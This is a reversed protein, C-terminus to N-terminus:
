PVLSPIIPDVTGLGDDGLLGLMQLPASGTVQLSTGTSVLGPFFEALDRTLRNNAPIKVTRSGLLTGNSASLVLVATVSAATSNQLSIGTFQTGGAIPKFFAQAYTTSSFLPYTAAVLPHTSKGLSTYRQYSYYTVKENTVNDVIRVRKGTMDLPSALTVDIENPSIYTSTAIIGENIDVSDTPQFGVGSIVIKTGAAVVGSGPVINSISMTGGVTMVGGKVLLPYRQSNPDFWAASKDLRLNATKGKGATSLVPIAVTLLPYDVVTGMSTLPSSLSFQVTGGKLVATGTADGAPSFLAIGKVPGFLTSAFSTKQGGKLIPKPETIDVKLQLTGGAPVTEDPIMLEVGPFPVEGAGNRAFSTSPAIMLMALSALAPLIFRNLLM